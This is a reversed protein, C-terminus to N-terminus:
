VEKLFQSATKIINANILFKAKPACGKKGKLSFPKKEGGIDHIIFTVAPYYL